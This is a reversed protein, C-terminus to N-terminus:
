ARLCLTRRLSSSRALLIVSGRRTFGPVTSFTGRAPSAADTAEADGAAGAALGDDSAPRWGDVTTGVIMLGRVRVAARPVSAFLRGGALADSATGGAAGRAEVSAGVAAAAIVLNRQGARPLIMELKPFPWFSPMLMASGRPVS